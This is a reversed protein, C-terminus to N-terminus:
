IWTGVHQLLVTATWKTSPFSRELEGYDASSEITVCGCVDRM